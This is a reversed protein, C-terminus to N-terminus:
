INFSSNSTSWVAPSRSSTWPDTTGKSEAILERMERRRADARLCEVGRRFVLAERIAAKSGRVRRFRAFGRRGIHALDAYRRWSCWVLHDVRLHLRTAMRAKNGSLACASISRPLGVCDARLPRGTTPDPPHLSQSPASCAGDPRRTEDFDYLLMLDALDSATERGGSSAGYGGGRCIGRRPM